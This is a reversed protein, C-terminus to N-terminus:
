EAVGGNIRSREEEYSIGLAVMYDAFTQAQLQQYAYEAVLKQGRKQFKPNLDTITQTQKM